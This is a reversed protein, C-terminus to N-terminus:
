RCQSLQEEFVEDLTPPSDLLEGLLFPLDHVFLSVVGVDDCQGLGECHPHLCLGALDVKEVPRSGIIKQALLAPGLRGSGQRSEGRGPTLYTCLPKETHLQLTM